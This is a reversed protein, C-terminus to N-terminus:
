VWVPGECNSQDTSTMTLLKQGPPQPALIQVTHARDFCSKVEEVANEVARVYADRFRSRNKYVFGNVATGQVILAVQHTLYVASQAKAEDVTPTDDLKAEIVIKGPIAGIAKVGGYEKAMMCAGGCAGIYLITGSMILERLCKIVSPYTVFVQAFNYRDGGCMYVVHCRKMTEIINADSPILFQFEIKDGLLSKLATELMSNAEKRKTRGWEGIGVVVVEKGTDPWVSKWAEQEHVCNPKDQLCGPLLFLRREKVNGRLLLSDHVDGNGSADNGEVSHQRVGEDCSSHSDRSVDSQSVSEEEGIVFPWKYCKDPQNWMWFSWVGTKDQRGVWLANCKETDIRRGSIFNWSYVEGHDDVIRVWLHRDDVAGTIRPYKYRIQPTNWRWFTRSGRNDTQGVWSASCKEIRTTSSKIFNWSYLFNGNPGVMRVWCEPNRNAAVEKM